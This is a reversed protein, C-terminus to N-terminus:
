NLRRLVLLAKVLAVLMVLLGVCFFLPAYVPVTPSAFLRVIFTLMWASIGGTAIIYVIVLPVVKKLVGIMGLLVLCSFGTFVFLLRLDLTIAISCFLVQFLMLLTLPRGPNRSYELVPDHAIHSGKEGSAVGREEEDLLPALPQSVHTYHESVPAFASPFVPAPTVYQPIFEMEDQEGQVVAPVTNPMPMPMPMPMPTYAGPHGFYAQQQMQQQQMQQQQMQQMMPVPQGSLQGYNPQVVPQMQQAVPQMQQAVPQGPVITTYLGPDEEPIHYLSEYMSGM